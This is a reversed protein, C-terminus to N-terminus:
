PEPDKPRNEDVASSIVRMAHWFWASQDESGGECPLVGNQLLNWARMADFYEEPVSGPQSSRPCVTIREDDIAYESDPNPADCGWAKRLRPGEPGRCRRCDMPLKGIGLLAM